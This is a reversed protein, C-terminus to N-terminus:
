ASKRYITSDTKVLGALALVDPAGFFFWVALISDCVACGASSATDFPVISNGYLHHLVDWIVHLLWGLAIFRYNTTGKFAIVTMMGCFAFEAAGFGGRLYAAGAGAIILANIKQRDPEKVRSFILMYIVAIGAAVVANLLTFDPVMHKEM